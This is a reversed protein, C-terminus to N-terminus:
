SGRGCALRPKRIGRNWDDGPVRAPVDAWQYHTGALTVRAPGSEPKRLSDDAASPEYSFCSQGWPRRSWRRLLAGHRRPCFWFYFRRCLGGSVGSCFSAEHNSEEQQHAEKSCLNIMWGSLSKARTAQISQDQPAHTPWLKLPLGFPTSGRVSEGTRIRYAWGALGTETPQTARTTLNRDAAEASRRSTPRRRRTCSPPRGAKGAKAPRAHREFPM